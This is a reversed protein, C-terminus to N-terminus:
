RATSISTSTTRRTTARQHERSDQLRDLEGTISINPAVYVRASAASTRSRRRRARRVRHRDAGAPEGRRRHVEVAARVRRVLPRSLPLRVRLRALWTKWALETTVPLNVGYRIGNFMFDRICPRAAGNYSMPLYNSASSTSARPGCCSACSPSASRSSASIPARRRDTTGLIGLSESAVELHPPPNWFAVAAEVHYREGTAPDAFPTAAFQAQAVAPM